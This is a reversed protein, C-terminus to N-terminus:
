LPAGGPAVRRCHSGGGAPVVEIEVVDRLLADLRSPALLRYATYRAALSIHSLRRPGQKMILRSRCGELDLAGLNYMSTFLARHELTKEYTTASVDYGIRSEDGWVRKFISALEYFRYSSEGGLPFRDELEFVSTAKADASESLRLMFARDKAWRAQWEIHSSWTTYGCTVVIAFLGAAVVRRPLADREVLLQALGVLLIGTPIVVLLGHRTDWGAVTPAKGVAAYPFAGMVFLVLGVLLVKPARTDPGRRAEVERAFRAAVLAGAIAVAVLVIPTAFLHTLIANPLRVFSTTFFMLLADLVVSPSFSIQNYTTFDASPGRLPFALKAFIWFAFPSALYDVHRVAFSALAGPSPREDRKKLSVLALLALWAFYVVLFSKIWFSCFFAVHAAVRLAVAKPRSASVEGEVGLVGGVLFLTWFLGYLSIALDLTSINFTPFVIVIAAVFGIQGRTLLEAKSLLRAALLASAGIGAFTWLRYGLVGGTTGSVVRHMYYAAPNGMSFFTERMIDWRGEVLQTFFLWGDWYVGDNVLIVGHVAVLLAFLGLAWARTSLPPENM